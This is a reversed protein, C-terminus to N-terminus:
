KRWRDYKKLEDERKKAKSKLTGYKMYLPITKWCKSGDLPAIPLLNIVAIILNSYGLYYLLDKLYAPLTDAFLYSLLLAPIFIIAQVVVGGWAVIGDEYETNASQHYCVGGMPYLDIHTSKLGLRSAFWMHGLEHTILIFLLAFVVTPFSGKIIMAISISVMLVLLSWHFRIPVNKISFLTTFEDLKIKKM